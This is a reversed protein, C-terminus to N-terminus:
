GWFRVHGRCGAFSVHPISRGVENAVQRCERIYMGANEGPEKSIGGYKFQCDAIFRLLAPVNVLEKM